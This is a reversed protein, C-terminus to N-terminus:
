APHDHSSEEREPADVDDYAALIDAGITRAALLRTEERRLRTHPECGPEWWRGWIRLVRQGILLAVALAIWLHWSPWRDSLVSRAVGLATVAGMGLVTLAAAPAEVGWWGRWAAPAAALAGVIMLVAGIAVDAPTPGPRALVAAGAAGLCVYTAAALLSIVRPPTLSGWVSRSVALPGARM